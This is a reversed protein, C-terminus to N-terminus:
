AECELQLKANQREMIADRYVSLLRTIHTEKSFKEKVLDIGERGMRLITENQGLLAEIKNGLEAVNGREVLLGTKGHILWERVGGVDYGVVPRGNALAEIGVLPCGESGISPFVVFSVRRYLDGIEEHNLRGLLRVRTRSGNSITNQLNLLEPGEGVILTEFNAQVRRVAELLHMIGKEYSLRGVFLIKKEAPFEQENYEITKLDSFHYILSIKNQMVIKKAALAKLYNSYVVIKECKCVEVLSFYNHVFYAMAEISAKGIGPKYCRFLCGPGFTRSCFTTSKGILRSAVYPPPKCCFPRCDHISKVTPKLQRLARLASPHLLNHVHIIDPDFNEVITRALKIAKQLNTFNRLPRKRIPPANLDALLVYDESFFSPKERVQGGLFFVTHGLERLTQSLTQIHAETGGGSHIPGDNVLLIKVSKEL